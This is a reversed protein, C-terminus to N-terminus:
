SSLDYRLEGVGSIISMRERCLRQNTPLNEFSVGQTKSDDLCSMLNTGSEDVSM